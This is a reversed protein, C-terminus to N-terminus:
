AARWQQLSELPMRVQLASHPRYTHCEIRHQEAMLRTEQFTMFLEINLLEDRFRGTFWEAFPKEWPSGPPDYATSNGSGTSWEQLADVLFEASNVM